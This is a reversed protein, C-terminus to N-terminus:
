EAEEEVPKFSTGSVQQLLMALPNDAQVGHNMDMKDGYKKPLLKSAIWKRTDIRLRNRAVATSDLVVETFGDKEKVIVNTEDAISVMEDALLEAQEAKAIAYQESFAKHVGLWLMITSVAPMGDMQAIERLRKNDIILACIASAIESNYTTPRGLIAKSAVPKKKGQPKTQTKAM